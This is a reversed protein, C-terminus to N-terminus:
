ITQTNRKPLEFEFAINRPRNKWDRLNITKNKIEVEIWDTHKSRALPLGTFLYVKPSSLIGVLLNFENETILDSDVGITDLSNKGIQIIPAITDKLNNFDNQLDGINSTALNREYFKNFLYYSYGGQANFWKLYIADNGCMPIRDLNIFKNTTLDNQLIEIKTINNSLQFLSNNILDNEGDGFFLRTLTAKREFTTLYSYDNILQINFGSNEYFTVDFPYGEYYKVFYQNNTNKINPLLCFISESGIDYKKYDELNYVNALFKINFNSNEITGNILTVELLVNGSYFGEEQEYTYTNIDIDIINTTLLDQFNNKNVLTKAIEKFNFRFWGSPLKYIIFSISNITVKAQVSENTSDSKFEIINNNFAPLIGNIVTNDKIVIM